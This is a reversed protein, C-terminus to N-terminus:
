PTGSLPVLGPGRERVSTVARDGPRTRRTHAQRAGLGVPAVRRGPRALPLRVPGGARRRGGRARADRVGLQVAVGVEAEQVTRTVRLLQDLLRRAQAQVRQCEGVVVAHVPHDPEGLGGGLEPDARDEACLQRQPEGGRLVPHGIRLAAVQEQERAVGVPVPPQAARDAGGLEGALLLAARDVVELLDDGVRGPVHEHEGSAALARYALRQTATPAGGRSDRETAQGLPEARLVDGDFEGVRRQGRVDLDVVGQGAEGGVHPQRGDGGGGRVVGRRLPERQGRRQRRNPGPAAQVLGVAPQRGRTGRVQARARLHGGPEIGAMGARHRPRRPEARFTRERDIEDSRVQGRELGRGTDRLRLPQALEGAASYQLAVAAVVLVGFRDGGHLPLQRDDLVPLEGAVEQDHVVDHGEAARRPDQALAAPRRRVGRDAVRQPDRVHVRHRVAQQELPEQRRGAVTVGVDVEVDLRAAPLLDDLVDVATVPAVPRSLHRVHDAVPGARGHAVDRPRQTERRTLLVRPALLDLAPM